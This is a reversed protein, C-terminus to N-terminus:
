EQQKDKFSRPSSKVPKMHNKQLGAFRKPTKFLWEFICLLFSAAKKIKIKSIKIHM